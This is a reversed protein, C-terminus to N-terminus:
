NTTILLDSIQNNQDPRLELEQERGATPPSTWGFFDMGLNKSEPLEPM